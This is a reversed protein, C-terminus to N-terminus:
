KKEFGITVIEHKRVPIQVNNNVDRQLFDKKEEM